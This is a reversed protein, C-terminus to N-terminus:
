YASFRFPMRRHLRELTRTHSAIADFIADLLSSLHAMARPETEDIEYAATYASALHVAIKILEGTDMELGVALREILDLSLNHRGREIGTMYTRHVKCALAFGEQSYGAKKRLRAVATGLAIRLSIM